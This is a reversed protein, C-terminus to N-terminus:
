MTANLLLPTQERPCTALLAPSLFVSRVLNYILLDYLYVVTRVRLRSAMTFRTICHETSADFSLRSQM